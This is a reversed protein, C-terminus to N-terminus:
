PRPMPFSDIVQQELRDLVEGRKLYPWLPDMAESPIGSNVIYSKGQYELSWPIHREGQSASRFIVQEGGPLELLIGLSPYDDTHDILPEYEGEKMPLSPDALTQLFKEAVDQPLTIAETATVPNGSFGGASFEGTGSFGQSDQNLTYHAELPATPSLGSWDDQLLITTAETLKPPWSTEGSPTPNSVVPTDTASQRVTATATAAVPTNTALGTSCGALALMVLVYLTMPIVKSSPM